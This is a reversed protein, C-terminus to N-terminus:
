EKEKKCKGESETHIKELEALSKISLYPLAKLSSSTAMIQWSVM